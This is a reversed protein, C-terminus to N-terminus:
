IKEGFLSFTKSDTIKVDVIEGTHDADSQFNVLKFSDTRGSYTKKNTKSPGEVLVKEVRDVYAKNKEFSIENLVDVLRSFRKHKVEEPVFDEFKAAPAGERASYLFTFASDFEAKKALDLTDEFDEETEGPFGVIIDTTVAIDPQSERLRELLSLYDAKTYKRNMRELVRDSGAQVPLHIHGCLKGCRSFAEILGGSLDKPHSTMFRIREVGDTEAIMYVLEVFGTGKPGKYSNVNQGLLTIEKAGGAALSRVEELINEAERSRERGRTYPVVCYTCFNNCGYMINVFAKFPYLRKAPLGEVIEGAEEYIAVRKRKESIVSEVLKPLEHINHTGFVIDVWPYKEKVTDVLHQQQMMCGCVGVVLEPRSQKISKIQGLTGFFRNDANERVSCTNIIIIDAKDRSKSESFGMGALLGAMTESDRENMQCGFTIFMYTKNARM